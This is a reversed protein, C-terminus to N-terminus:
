KSALNTSTILNQMLLADEQLTLEHGRTSGRSDGIQLTVEELLLGLELRISRITAYGQPYNEKVCQHNILPVTEGAPFTPTKSFV